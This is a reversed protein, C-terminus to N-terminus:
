SIKLIVISRATRPTIQIYGKDYLNMIHKQAVPKSVFVGKSIERLSPSYGHQKIYNEIFCLVETQRETLQKNEEKKM